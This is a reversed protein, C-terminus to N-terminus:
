EKVVVKIERTIKGFYAVVYDSGTSKTIAKGTKQNIVVVSKKTTKWKIRSTDVGYGAATFTFTEGMKMTETLNVM